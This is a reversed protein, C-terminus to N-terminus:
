NQCGKETKKLLKGEETWGVLNNANSKTRKKGGKNSFEGMGMSKIITHAHM